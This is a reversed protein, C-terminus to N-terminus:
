VVLRRRKGAYEPCLAVWLTVTLQARRAGGRVLDTPRGRAALDLVDEMVGVQGPGARSVQEARQTRGLPEQRRGTREAM